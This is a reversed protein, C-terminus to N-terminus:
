VIRPGSAYNEMGVNFLISILCLLRDSIGFEVNLSHGLCVAKDGLSIELSENARDM